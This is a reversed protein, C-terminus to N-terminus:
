AIICIPYKLGQLRHSTRLWLASILCSIHSMTTHMAVAWSLESISQSTYSIFSPVDITEKDM